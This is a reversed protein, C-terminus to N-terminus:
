REVALPNEQHRASIRKLRKLVNLASRLHGARIEAQAKRELMPILKSLCAEAENAAADRLEAIRGQINVNALLRAASARTAPDSDRGYAMAYARTASLGTAVAQAFAEHRSLQLPGLNSQLVRM